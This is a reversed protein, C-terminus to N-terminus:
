HWHIALVLALALAVALPPGLESNGRVRALRWREPPATDASSPSWARLSPLLGPVTARYARYREGYIAELRASETREKRPLYYFFFLALGAGLAPSEVLPGCFVGFGVGILLTGLYLPHRVHAYPGSVTLERTKTLHGAAWLRIGVGALILPLGLAASRPTPRGIVLAGIAVVVLVVVTGRRHGRRLPNPIWPKPHVQSM